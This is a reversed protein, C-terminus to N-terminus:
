VDAYFRARADGLTGTHSAMHQPIPPPKRRIGQLDTTGRPLNEGSDGVFATDPELEFVVSMVDVVCKLSDM